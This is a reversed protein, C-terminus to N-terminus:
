GNALLFQQLHEVGLGIGGCWLLLLAFFILYPVPHLRNDPHGFLSKSLGLSLSCSCLAFLLFPPIELAIRPFIASLTLLIGKKGWLVVALCSTFGLAFGRLLLLLLCLPAGLASFGGLFLLLIPLISHFFAQLWLPSTTVTLLEAAQGLVEPDTQRASLTGAVLGALFLALTLPTLVPHNHFLAQILSSFFNKM